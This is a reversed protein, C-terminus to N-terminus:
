TILNFDKNFIQEYEKKKNCASNHKICTLAKQIGCISCPNTIMNEHKKEIINGREIEHILEPLLNAANGPNDNYAKHLNRLIDSLFAVGKIFLFM